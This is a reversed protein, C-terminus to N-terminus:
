RVPYYGYRTALYRRYIDLTHQFTRSRHRHVRITLNQM